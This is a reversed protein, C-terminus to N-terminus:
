LKAQADDSIETYMTVGTARMYEFLRTLALTPKGSELEIVYRRNVDMYDAVEDQTLENSLRAERLIRGLTEPSTVRASRM